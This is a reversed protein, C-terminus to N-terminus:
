ICVIDCHGSLTRGNSAIGSWYTIRFCGTHYNSGFNWSGLGLDGTLYASIYAGLGMFGATGLSILGSYGLLLNLGLAAIAYIITGGIIGVWSTKLIGANVLVPLLSIIIGFIIYQLYPNKLFSKQTSGKQM